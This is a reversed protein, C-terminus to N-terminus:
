PGILSATPEPTVLPRVFAWDVLLESVVGTCTSGFASTGMGLVMPTDDPSKFTGQGRFNGLFSDGRFLYQNEGVWDIAFRHPNEDISSGDITQFQSGLPDRQAEFYLGRQTQVIASRLRDDSQSWAALIRERSCAGNGSTAGGRAAVRAEVRVGPARWGSIAQIQSYSGDGQGRSWLRLQGNAVDQGSSGPDTSAHVRWSTRDLADGDFSDYALFVRKPQEVGPFNINAVLLFYQNNSTQNAAVPSPLSFWIKTNSEGWASGPDLARPLSTDVGGVTSVIAVDGGDVRYGSDVLAAHDFELSLAYGTALASSSSRNVVRIAYRVIPQPPADSSSADSRSLTGTALSSDTSSSPSAISSLDSSSSDESIPDSTSNNQPSSDSALGSESTSPDTNQQTEEFSTRVNSRQLWFNENRQLCSSCLFCIVCSLFRASGSGLASGARNERSRRGFGPQPTM